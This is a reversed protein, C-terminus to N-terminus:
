ATGGEITNTWATVYDGSGSKILFNNVAGGVPVGAGRFTGVNIWTNSTTWVWLAGTDDTVYADNYAVGTTPLNSSTSVTAIVDIGDGPIGQIGQIGQPGAPGTLGIDGTDGKDGKDGKPGNLYFVGNANPVPTLDTLDKTSGAELSFSFSPLSVPTGSQDTLRFDVRWTWDEPNNDIDDTAMLRVGLGTAGVHTRLYGDADLVTEITAPLITVPVPSASQNKLLIPSATFFVSGAAPIADPELGTDVSDAYAFIFRGNVTGYSLNSPINAM